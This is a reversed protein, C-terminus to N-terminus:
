KRGMERIKFERILDDITHKQNPRILLSAKSRNISSSSRIMRNINAEHEEMKKNEQFYVQGM